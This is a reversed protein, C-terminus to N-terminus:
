GARASSTSAPSSAPSCSRRTGLLSSSAPASGSGSPSRPSRPWSRSRTSPASRNPRFPYATSAATATAPNSPARCATSCGCRRTASPSPPTPSPRSPPPSPWGASRPAPSASACSPEGSRPENPPEGTRGRRAQEGSSARKCAASSRGHRHGDLPRCAPHRGSRDRCARLDLDSGSRVVGSGFSGTMSMGARKRGVWVTAGSVKRTRWTSPSPMPGTTAGTFEITIRPVSGTTTSVPM